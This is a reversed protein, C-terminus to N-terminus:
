YGFDAVAARSYFAGDSIPDPEAPLDVVLLGVDIAQPRTLHHWGATLEVTGRPPLPQGDVLLSVDRPSKPHWRYRGPIIVEFDLSTGAAGHLGAGPVAIHAFYPVYHNYIYERIPMPFLELSFTSILYDVPRAPFEAIFKAIAKDPDKSLFFRRKIRDGLLVPMPRPPNTCFLAGEPSWGISRPSFHAGAFGLSDRQPRQTDRLRDAMALGGWLVMGGVCASFLWRSALRSSSLLRYAAPAGIGLAVAPFVGLTMWFYPFAGAHFLGVALGVIGVLWALALQGRASDRRSFALYTAVMMAVGLGLHPLLTPSMAQYARWGFFRRYYDFMRFGAGIGPASSPPTLYLGVVYRYIAIVAFGALLCAAARIVARWRGAPHRWVDAVALVGGLGAVYLLKQSCLYGVAWLAGALLAWALRRRSALLLVSGWLGAALAPQDTRVQVSWRVVVPVLALAATALLAGELRDRQGRRVSWVLCFVGGFAALTFGAWLLRAVHAVHMPDVCGRVVPVLLLSAFGPRGGGSLRGHRLGAAVRHFLAFEDWNINETFVAILHTAVLGAAVVLALLLEMRRLRQSPPSDVAPEM